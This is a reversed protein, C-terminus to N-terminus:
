VGAAEERLKEAQALLTSAIGTLKAAAARQAEGLTQHWDNGVETLFHGGFMEAYLKGNVDVADATDTHVIAGAETVRELVTIKFLKM